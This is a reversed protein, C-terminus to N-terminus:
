KLKFNIKSVQFGFSVYIDNTPYLFHRLLINKNM